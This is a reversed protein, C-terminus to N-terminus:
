PRFKWVERVEPEASVKDFYSPPTEYYRTGDALEFFEGRGEESWVAVLQEMKWANTGNTHGPSVLNVNRSKINPVESIGVLQDLEGTLMVQRVPDEDDWYVDYEIHFWRFSLEHWIYHWQNIHERKLEPPFILQAGEITLFM